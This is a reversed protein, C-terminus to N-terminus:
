CWTLALSTQGPERDLHYFTCNMAAEGKGGQEKQARKLLRSIITEELAELYAAISKISSLENM